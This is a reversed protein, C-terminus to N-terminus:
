NESEGIVDFRLKKGDSLLLEYSRSYQAANIQDDKLIRAKYDGPKMSLPTSGSFAVSESALILKRGEASVELRLLPGESVRLKLLVTEARYVHVTIPYDEAKQAQVTTALSFMLIAISLLISKGM